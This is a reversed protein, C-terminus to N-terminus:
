KAAAADGIIGHVHRDFIGDELEIQLQFLRSACTPTARVLSSGTPLQKGIAFLQPHDARSADIGHRRELMPQVHEALLNGRAIGLRLEVPHPEIHLLVLVIQCQVIQAASIGAKLRLKRGVLRGQPEKRRDALYVGWVLREHHHRQKVSRNTVPPRWRRLM